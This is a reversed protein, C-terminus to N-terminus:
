ELEDPPDSAKKRGSWQSASEEVPLQGMTARLRGDPQWPKRRRQAEALSRALEADDFTLAADPPDAHAQQPDPSTAEMRPQPSAAEGSAAPAQARPSEVPSSSAGSTPAVEPAPSDPALGPAAGPTTATTGAEAPTTRAIWNLLESDVLQLDGWRLLWRKGVPSLLCLQPLPSAARMYAAVAALARGFTKDCCHFEIKCQVKILRRLDCGRMVRNALGLRALVRLAKLLMPVMTAGPGSLDFTLYREILDLDTVSLERCTLSRPPPSQRSSGSRAATPVVRAEPDRGAETDVPSDQAGRTRYNWTLIQGLDCRRLEAFCYLGVCEDLKGDRLVLLGYYDGGLHGLMLRTGDFLDVHGIAGAAGSARLFVRRDGVRVFLAEGPSRLMREHATRQLAEAEGVALVSVPGDNRAFMLFQEGTVLPMMRLEGGITVAHLTDDGGTCHWGPRQDGFEPGGPPGHIAVDIACREVCERSGQALVRSGYPGGWVLMLAWGDGARAKALTGERVASCFVEEAHMSWEQDAACEQDRVEARAACRAAYDRVLRNCLRKLVAQGDAHEMM